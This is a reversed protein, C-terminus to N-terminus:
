GKSEEVEESTDIAADAACPNKYVVITQPGIQVSSQCASIIKDTEFLKEKDNLARYLERKLLLDNSSQIKERNARLLEDGEAEWGLEDYCRYQWWLDDNESMQDLCTKFLEKWLDSEGLEKAYYAASFLENNKLCDLLGECYYRLANRWDRIALYRRALQLYDKLERLDRLLKNVREASVLEPRGQLSRLHLELDPSVEPEGLAKEIYKDRLEYNGYRHYHAALLDWQQNERLIEAKTTVFQIEDEADNENQIPRKTQALVRDRAVIRIWDDRYLTVQEADLRRAFGGKQQTLDHCEFCLAALNRLVHNSPNDDIHHIQVSKGKVRCVCCTRDAFFLVQASTSQPMPTRSKSLSKKRM